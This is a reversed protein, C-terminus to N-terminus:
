TLRGGTRTPKARAPKRPNGSAGGLAQVDAVDPSSAAQARQILRDVVGIGGAETILDGAQELSIHPHHRQLLAWFFGRFMELDEEQLRQLMETVSPKKGERACLTQLAMLGNYHQALVYTVGGIVVSTEGKEANAGM